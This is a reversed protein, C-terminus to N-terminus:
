IWALFVVSCCEFWGFVGCIVWDRVSGWFGLWIWVRIALDGIGFVEIFVRFGQFGFLLYFSFFFSFFAFPFCVKKCTLPSALFYVCDTNRKLADEEPPAAFPQPPATSEKTAAVM